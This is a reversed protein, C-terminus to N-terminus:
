SFTLCLKVNEMIKTFQPLLPAKLQIPYYRPVIGDSIDARSLMGIDKNYELKHLRTINEERNSELYYMNDKHYVTAFYKLIKGHQKPITHIYLHETEDDLDFSGDDENYYCVWRTTKDGNAAFTSFSRSRQLPRSCTHCLIPNMRSIMVM